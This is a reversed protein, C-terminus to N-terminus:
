IAGSNAEFGSVNQSTGVLKSRNGLGSLSRAPKSNITAYIDNPKEAAKKSRISGQKCDTAFQAPLMMASSLPEVSLLACQFFHAAVPREGDIGIFPYCSFQTMVDVRSNAFLRLVDTMAQGSCRDDTAMPQIKITACFCWQPKKSTFFRM